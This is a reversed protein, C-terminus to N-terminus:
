QIKIGMQKMLNTANFSKSVGKKIKYDFILQDGQVEVEMCLNEIHNNSHAELAGLELDHTAILGSGKEKILQQILAKAGTHRDRSNTGKLIEDLLFFVPLNQDPSLRHAEVAEIIFRLRKLEAYFSSTSEHLADQTRMSTYVYLIPLSLKEACVPAGSCALVINLGVTRLFTSKGAMNSGTILKIHGAIPMNLDNSVRKNLAILPHGLAKSELHLEKTFAPFTWSPHNYALTALSILADLEALKGFWEKTATGHQQQWKELKYTWQLDWLGTLNLLIAFVNFRVNLQSITYSLSKIAKSAIVKDKAFARQIEKLKRCSFSHNEITDMLSSYTSLFDAAKATRLHAEDVRKRTKWLLYAPLALPLIAIQWTTYILLLSVGLIVFPPVFYLSTKFLLNNSVFPAINLWEALLRLNQSEAEHEKGLAQFNQRWDIQPILEKIAEQRLLIEEKEFPQQLDFALRSKGSFSSTRNCYQFFSNPGFIDLDGAYPHLPDIFESGDPFQQFKHDQAQEEKHNIISLFNNLRAEKLIRQHRKIFIGFIVPLFFTAIGGVWLSTSWLFILLFIAGFFFILRIIALRNYQQKLQTYTQHFKLKREQYQKSLNM